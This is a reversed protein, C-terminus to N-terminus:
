RYRQKPRPDLGQDAFWDCVVEGIFHTLQLLGYLISLGILLMISGITPPPPSNGPWPLSRLWIEWFVFGAIIGGFTLIGLLSEIIERRPEKGINSLAM